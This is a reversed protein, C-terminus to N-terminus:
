LLFPPKARAEELVVALGRSLDVDLGLPFSTGLWGDSRSETGTAPGERSLPVTRHRFVALAASGRGATGHRGNQAQALAARAGTDRSLPLAGHRREGRRGALGGSTREPASSPSVPASSCVALRHTSICLWGGCVRPLAHRIRMPVRCRLSSVAGSCRWFCRRLACALLMNYFSGHM